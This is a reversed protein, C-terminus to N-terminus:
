GSFYESDVEKIEQWDIKWILFIGLDGGEIEFYEESLCIIPWTNATGEIRPQFGVLANKAVDLLNFIEDRAAEGKSAKVRILSVLTVVSMSDVRQNILKPEDKVQTNEWFTILAPYKRPTYQMPDIVFAFDAFVNGTKEAIRNHVSNALDLYKSM